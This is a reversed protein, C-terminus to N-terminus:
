LCARDVVITSSASGVGDSITTPVWTLTGSCLSWDALSLTLDCDPPTCVFPETQTIGDVSSAHVDIPDGDPDDFRSPVIVTQASFVGEYKMCETGSWTCCTTASCGLEPVILSDSTIVPPRNLIEFAVTHEPAVAWPDGIRETVVRTGLLGALVSVGAFPVTCSVAAEGATVAISACAGDGTPGVQALPDGDPDFWTSLTAVAEYATEAADYSHDVAFQAPSSVLVPPRNRVVIPLEAHTLAANVDEVALLISRELGAGGILFAEDGPSAYPVLIAFTISTGLDTGEFLAGAGDGCHHWEAERKMIPDGDEDWVSLSIEGSASFHTGDFDHDPEPVLADVIPPSNDVSVRTVATGLVGAADRVEVELLWDGSIAVGDTEITLTPSPAYRDPAFAVRRSSGLERGPPPRATWELEVPGTAGPASSTLAVASTLGCRLPTGSCAHKVSVDPGSLVLSPGDYPVVTFPVTAVSSAASLGDAVALDVAYSGPCAFRVQAL